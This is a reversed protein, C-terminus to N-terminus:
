QILIEELWHNDTVLGIKTDYQERDPLVYIGELTEEILYQKKLKAFDDERLNVIYKSLQKMLEYSIGDSKLKQVLDLSCGYNVIVSRCTNDILRFEKAVIDFYWEGIRMREEVKAKDFTESNKYLRIFYEKMTEPLFWDTVALMNRLTSSGKSLTGRPLPRDFSFVFADSIEMKGERNCRGAAQLVSDLGAIQRFVIPFDIDVGAEILQTAVVRIIKEQSDQLAFKIEAIVKQIHSSCMMRSLHYIKGEKPLRNFVEQADRRTNVICLVRSYKTLRMALEDYTCANKDFHLKVRRLKDHLCMKDPIIEKVSLLGKFTVTNNCGRHEGSLVPQSATTFLVSTRFKRQYVSIADVIPQLHETPLMQVEDLILVSNCINHLKRCVSPKNSLMSEFLQVNTTVVVPYDWNETALRHKLKVDNIDEAFDTSLLNSDFDSHHELVNESGFIERLISATQVIISTYPIAIIIRDKNYKIAHNMAWVISSITKGGGTPVTLSYLGPVDNACEKCREQIASRLVNLETKESTKSLRELFVELKPLLAKLPKQQNRYEARSIDMFNETDLYDADVLSSYLVRVLHHLDQQKWDKDKPIDLEVKPIEKYKVDEPMARRMKEMFDTFDYLGAHHSMIPLSLFPYVQPYLLKAVLAGVFAHPVKEAAKLNQIYGSARCIYNQFSHQEKGIDHLLGLVRGWEAMGIKEAFQAALCSVGKQHEENTQIIWNSDVKKLHSIFTM